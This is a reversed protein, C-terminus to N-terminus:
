PKSHNGSPFFTTFYLHSKYSFNVYVINVRVVLFRKLEFNLEQLLSYGTKQPAIFRLWPMQNLTGGAMDFARSRRNLLVLLRNLKADAKELRSGTVLAWLVNLVSRATIEGISKTM